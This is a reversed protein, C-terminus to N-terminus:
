ERRYGLLYPASLSLIRRLRRKGGADAEREEKCGGGEGWVATGAASLFRSVGRDLLPRAGEASESPIGASAAPVGPCLPEARGRAGVVPEQPVAARSHGTDQRLPQGPSGREPASPLPADLCFGESRDTQLGWERRGMWRWKSCHHPLVNALTTGYRARWVVFLCPADERGWGPPCSPPRPIGPLGVASPLRSSGPGPGGRRPLCRSQPSRAGRGAGGGSSSAGLSSGVGHRAGRAAEDRRTGGRGPAAGRPGREPAAAARPGAPAARRRAPPGPGGAGPPQEPATAAPSPGGGAGGASGGECM